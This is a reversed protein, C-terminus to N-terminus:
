FTLNYTRTYQGNTDVMLPIVEGNTTKAICINIAEDNQEPFAHKFLNAFETASMDQLAKIATSTIVNNDNSRTNLYIIYAEMDDMTDTDQIYRIRGLPASPSNELSMYIPVICMYKNERVIPFVVTVHKENDYGISVYATFPMDTYHENRKYLTYGPLYLGKNESKLYTELDNMNIGTALNYEKGFKGLMYGKKSHNGSFPQYSTYLVNVWDGNRGFMPMIENKDPHAAMVFAGTRNNARYRGGSESPYFPIVKTEYSGADSNWLMMRDAKVNPAKRINVDTATVKFFKTSSPHAIKFQQAQATITAFLAALFFTTKRM